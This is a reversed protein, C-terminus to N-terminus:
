FGVDVDPIDEGSRPAEDADVITLSSSAEENCFAEDSDVEVQSFLDCAEVETSFDESGISFVESFILFPLFASFADNLGRCSAGIGTTFGHALRASSIFALVACFALMLLGAAVVGVVESGLPVGCPGVAEAFFALPVGFPSPASDSLFVEAVSVFGFPRSSSFVTGTRFSAASM